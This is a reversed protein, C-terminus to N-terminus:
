GRTLRTRSDAEAMRLVETWGDTGLRDRLHLHASNLVHDLARVSNLGLAQRALPEPVGDFYVLSIAQREREPLALLANRVEDRREAQVLRERLGEFRDLIQKLEPAAAPKKELEQLTEALAEAEKAAEHIDQSQAEGTTAALAEWKLHNPGLEEPWRGQLLGVVVFFALGIVGTGVAAREVVLLVPWGLSVGPLKGHVGHVASLILGVVFALVLIWGVTRAATTSGLLDASVISRVRKVVASVQRIVDQGDGVKADWWRLGRDPLEPLGTGQRLSRTEIRPRTAPDELPLTFRDQLIGGVAEETPLRAVEVTRRARPPSRDSVVDDGSPDLRLGKVQEHAVHVIRRSPGGGVVAAARWGSGSAPSGAESCTYTRGPSELM